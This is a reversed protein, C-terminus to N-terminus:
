SRSETQSLHHRIPRLVENEVHLSIPRARAQLVHDRKTKDGHGIRGAAKQTLRGWHDVRRTNRSCACDAAYGEISLVGESFRSRNHRGRHFPQVPYRLSPTRYEPRIVRGEIPLEPVPVAVFVQSSIRGPEASSPNAIEICTAPAVWEIGRAPFLLTDGPVGVIGDIIGTSISLTEAPHKLLHSSHRTSTCSRRHQASSQWAIRLATVM